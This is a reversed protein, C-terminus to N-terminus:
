SCDGPLGTGRTQGPRERAHRVLIVYVAGPGHVGTVLVGEIDATKSPGTILSIAAPLESRKSLGEFYDCLDPLVQELAVVAIHVPPILSSGRAVGPQSECVLSGYEAIAAAVGTIAADVSFLTEDDVDSRAAIGAASLRQRLQEVRQAEFFGDSATPIAASQAEHKQLLEGVVDLWDSLTATQVSMGVAAAARRFRAALDEDLAVERARTQPDPPLVAEPPAARRTGSAAQGGADRRQRRKLSDLADAVIERRVEDDAVALRLRDDANM